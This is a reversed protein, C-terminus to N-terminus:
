VSGILWDRFLTAQRSLPRHKAHVLYDAHNTQYHFDGLRKLKGAEIAQCAMSDWVLSVGLGDLAANLTLTLQDFTIANRPIHYDVGFYGFWDQWDPCDWNSSDLQILPLALLDEPREPMAVDLRPSCAPYIIAPCLVDSVLTPWDGTGYLIGLDSEMCDFVNIRNSSLVNVMIHPHQQNFRVLRPLLWYHAVGVTCAISVAQEAQAYKTKVVARQMGHLLPAMDQLFDAGVKSLTIGRAHRDFLACGLADELAKIQKSVASQTICLEGAARTFSGCRAVVEFCVMTELPPLTNLIRLSNGLVFGRL